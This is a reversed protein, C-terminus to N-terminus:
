RSGVKEERSGLERMETESDLCTWSFASLVVRAGGERKPSPNVDNDYKALYNRARRHFAVGQEFLWKRIKPIDTRSINDYETRLCLNKTEEKAFINEEAVRSLTDVERTFLHLAKEPTANWVSFGRILKLGGPTREVVKLQELDFLVAAPGVNQSVSSVLRKFESDDGELSLVRPNGSKSCYQPTNEWTSLVRACLSAGETNIDKGVLIKTVDRRHLGTMVYVRSVTVKNGAARIERAAEEVYAQRIVSDLEHIMIRNKVCFKIVPAM